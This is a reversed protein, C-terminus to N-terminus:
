AGYAGAVGDLRMVRMVENGRPDIVKVAVRKHPGAVFPLSITGSLADFAGEDIVSKLAKALKEWASKDPFFAQTICFTRGDYDSDVFWAAVKDVNTALITNEVPNYIDVGELTVRFMGDTNTNLAMRPSGFVTFLQANPTDKLLSGMNVDPRIHALHCHLRPNPDDQIIAQAAADFSFGAFVLNEFGRRAAFTLANEVQYATVPGFEPGISVAVTQSNGEGDGWEGEAHLFEEGIPSLRSFKAVKNNPFRVGDGFLLRIMKDLFAEANQPANSADFGDLEGPPGDIPSSENLTLEAPMVAEMTFPGSVRVVNKRVRPKDVLEENKANAAVAANVENMKAKWAERYSLLAAQLEKPWDDDTDFPVEWEYWGVANANVTLTLKPDRNAPPLLWRRRDAETVWKKGEAKNKAALKAVLRQRVEQGVKALAANLSKLRQDILSQHKAFISDLASNQAISQLTVHPVTECDLTMATGGAGVGEDKLWPGNANRRLDDDNLPRLEFYDFKATMVRQRALALAVRSTDMTIWRRGWHEAVYATTGSGCTPDLVLDGPDTTMLLCREIVKYSTQVVYIPNPEGHVDDWINSRASHSWDDWYLVAGLSEGGGDFVREAQALRPMGLELDYTWHRNRGCSFTRGQFPVDKSRESPDQSVLPYNVRAWRGGQGLLARIQDSDLTAVRLMSGNPMIITNFKPDDDPDLKEAFLQRLKLRGADKAFWLLYDCVPDTQTTASKKKVVVTVVFNEIGFVEDMVARVRHLNEDSIQVFISGSDALLEKAVFLRDRLYALYSHVGLTWTDRYAKVMEPERTLDSEKDKVERKGVEPQFNSAFKIGYPPDIYIMQVRGALSERRALSAMVQLSDGLIMRNTWDMDHQYFQVAERYSFKPDAFLDRQVDQRAAVRVIAQAAIREHIHLAVPEVDFWRRERKSAWELWPQHTRLADSLQKAEDDTLARQRTVALLEPLKDSVGTGDFRLVPPRHPDYEYRIRQPSELKGQAALGAPPINTRKADFRYDAISEAPQTTDAGKKKGRTAM